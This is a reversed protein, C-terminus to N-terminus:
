DGGGAHVDERGEVCDGLQEKVFEFLLIGLEKGPGSLLLTLALTLTLRLRGRRTRTKKAALSRTHADVGGSWWEVVGGSWWEVVGGSWWEVVGGSWWETGGDSRFHEKERTRAPPGYSM